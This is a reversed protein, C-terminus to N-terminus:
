AQEKRRPSSDREVELADLIREFTVGARTYAEIVTEMSGARFVCFAAEDGPVLTSHLFAINTNGLSLEEASVRVREAASRFEEPTVGPWYHEVLFTREAQESGEM